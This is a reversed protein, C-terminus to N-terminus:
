FLRLVDEQTQSAMSWSTTSLTMKTQLALLNAGEENLSTINIAKGGAELTSITEQTFAQRTQIDKLDGSVTLRLSQTEDMASRIIEISDTISSPTAFSLNDFNLVAPSLNIGETIIANREGGGFATKLEDGNLLNIGAVEANNVISIIRDKIAGLQTEQEAGSGAKQAELALSEAERIIDTLETISRSAKELTKISQSLHDLLRTLESARSSLTQTCFDQAAQRIIDATASESVNGSVPATNHIREAGTTKQLSRLNNQLASTLTVDSTM